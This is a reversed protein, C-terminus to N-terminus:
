HGPRQLEFTSGSTRIALHNAIAIRTDLALAGTM